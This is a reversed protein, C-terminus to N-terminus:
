GAGPGGASGRPLPTTAGEFHSWLLRDVESAVSGWGPAPAVQGVLAGAQGVPPWTGATSARSCARACTSVTSDNVLDVRQM